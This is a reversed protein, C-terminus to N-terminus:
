HIVETFSLFLSLAPAVLLVSDLRDLVGGHGPILKGYDKIGVSRKIASAFLDGAVGIVCFVPTAIILPLINITVAQYIESFILYIIVIGILSGIIGGFLGEISKKPSIIPAMKHKGIASGVFYAFIDAVCSFNFILIFYFIGFGDDANILLTLSHFAYSIIIPMSISLTIQQIGFTKHTKIAFFAMILVFIYTPYAPEFFGDYAFQMFAAYFSAILVAGTNKIIKTGYLMEWVSLAALIAIVIPAIISFMTNFYLIGIVLVALTVGSIIRTKM